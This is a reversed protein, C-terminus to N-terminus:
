PTTINRTLSHEERDPFQIATVRHSISLFTKIFFEFGPQCTVRTSIKTPKATKIIRDANTTGRKIGGSPLAADLDGAALV